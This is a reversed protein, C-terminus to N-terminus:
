PRDGGVEVIRITKALPSSGILYPRTSPMLRGPPIDRRLPIRQCTAPFAVPTAVSGTGLTDMM